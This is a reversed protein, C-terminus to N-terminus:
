KKAAEFIPPITKRYKLSLELVKKHVRERLNEDPIHELIENVFAKMMMQRAIKESIGRTMLSFIPEEELDSITAGHNACEIDSPIIELTPIAVASAGFNLLVSRCLTNLKAKIADREIRGRSRWVAHGKDSVLFKFLQNTEMNPHEHHFMEYQSINQKDELLSLGYSEQKCGKEGEIQLNVRSSLSGLLVDAFKYNAEFGNKVSVNHFYWVNKGLEQSLTHKVNSEKEMAIRSFANVLGGNNQNLSIHSEHINIKSNGKVYVVLRPTTVPNHTYNTLEKQKYKKESQVIPQTNEKIEPSAHHANEGDNVYKDHQERSTTENTENTEQVSEDGPSCEYVSYNAEKTSAQDDENKSTQIFIVHIFKDSLDIDKDLYIVACDKISALNLASFKAMGFDSKRYDYIPYDNDFKRSQKGIQGRVFPQTNKKYWNSHEPIYYLEKNILYEVEPDKINFFSGVFIKSKKTEERQEISSSPELPNQEGEVEKADSQKLENDLNKLIAIDDSLHEDVIGDRVVLTYFAGKCKSSNASNTSNIYSIDKNIGRPLNGRPKKEDGTPESLEASNQDSVDPESFIKENPSAFASGDSPIEAQELDAVDSKNRHSDEQHASKGRHFAVEDVKMKYNTLEEKSIERLSISNDFNQKYFKKLNVQQRWAELKRNPTPIEAFASKGSNQLIKWMCYKPDDINLYIQPIPISNSNEVIEGKEDYKWLNIFETDELINQNYKEKFKQIQDDFLNRTHTLSRSIEEDMPDKENKVFQNSTSKQPETLPPTVNQATGSPKMQLESEPMDLSIHATNKKENYSPPFNNGKPSREAKNSNKENRQILKEKLQDFKNILYDTEIATKDRILIQLTHLNLLFNLNSFFHQNYSSSILMLDDFFVNRKVDTPTNFSYIKNREKGFTDINRPSFGSTTLANIPSNNYCKPSKFSSQVFKSETSIDEEYTVLKPIYYKYTYSDRKLYIPHTYTFNYKYTLYSKKKKEWEEMEILENNKIFTNVSGINQYETNHMNSLYDYMLTRNYKKEHSGQYWDNMTINSVTRQCNETIEEEGDEEKEMEPTFKEYLEEYKRLRNKFNRRKNTDEKQTSLNIFLPKSFQPIPIGGSKTLRRRLKSVNTNKYGREYTRNQTRSANGGNQYTQVTENSSGLKSRRASSSDFHIAYLKRKRKRKNKNWERGAANLTSGGGKPLINFTCNYNQPKLKATGHSKTETRFGTTSVHADNICRCEAYHFLNVVNSTLLLLLLICSGIIAKPM